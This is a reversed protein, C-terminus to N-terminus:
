VGCGEVKGKDEGRGREAGALGRCLFGRWVFFTKKLVWPTFWTKPMWPCAQIRLLYGPTAMYVMKHTIALPHLETIPKDSPNAM